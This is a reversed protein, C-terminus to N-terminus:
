QLYKYESVWSKLLLGVYLDKEDDVCVSLSFLNGQNLSKYYNLSLFRGDENLLHEPNKEYNWVGSHSRSCWCVTRPSFIWVESWGQVFVQITRICDSSYSCETRPRVCVYWWQYKIHYQMFIRVIKARTKWYANRNREQQVHM